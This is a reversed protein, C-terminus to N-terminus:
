KGKYNSLRTKNLDLYGHKWHTKKNIEQTYHQSMDINKGDSLKLPVFSNRKKLRQQKIIEKLLTQQKIIEKLTETNSTQNHAVAYKAFNGKETNSHPPLILGENDFIIIDKLKGFCHKKIIIDKLEGFRKKLRNDYVDFKIGPNIQGISKGDKDYVELYVINFKDDLQLIHPRKYGDQPIVICNNEVDYRAKSAASVRFADNKTISKDFMDKLYSIHEEKIDKQYKEKEQEVFTQFATKCRNYETKWAPILGKIPYKGNIMEGFSFRFSSGIYGSLAPHLKQQFDEFDTTLKEKIVQDKLEPINEIQQNLSSKINEIQDINTITTNNLINELIKSTREKITDNFKKDEESYYQAIGKYDDTYEAKSGIIKGTNDFTLKIQLYDVMEGDLKFTYSFKNDEELKCLGLDEIDIFSKLKAAAQKREKKLDKDDLLASFVNDCDESSFQKVSKMILINHEDKKKNQLCQLIYNSNDGFVENHIAGNMKDEEEKIKEEIKKEITEKTEKKFKERVKKGIDAKEKEDLDVRPLWFIYKPIDSSIEENINEKTHIITKDKKLVFYGVIDNSHFIEEWDNYTKQKEIAASIKEQISKQESTTKIENKM